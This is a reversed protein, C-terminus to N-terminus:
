EKRFLEVFQSYSEPVYACILRCYTQHMFFHLGHHQYLFHKMRAYAVQPILRLHHDAHVFSFAGSFKVSGNIRNPTESPNLSGKKTFFLRDNEPIM